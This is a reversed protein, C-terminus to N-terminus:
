NKKIENLEKSLNIYFTVLITLQKDIFRKSISNDETLLKASIDNINNPTLASLGFPKYIDIHYDDWLIRKLNEFNTNFYEGTKNSKLLTKIDVNRVIDNIYMSAMRNDEISLYSTLLMRSLIPSSLEITREQSFIKLQYIPVLHIIILYKLTDNIETIYEIENEQFEKLYDEAEKLVLEKLYIEPEKQHKEPILSLPLVYVGDLKNFLKQFGIKELALGIPARMWKSNIEGLKRKAKELKSAAQVSKSSKWKEVEKMVKNREATQEKYTTSFGEGYKHVFILKESNALNLISKESIKGKSLVNDIARSIYPKSEKLDVNKPVNFREFMRPSIKKIQKVEEALLEYSKGHWNTISLFHYYTNKYNFFKMLREKILLSNLIKPYGNIFFYSKLLFMDIRNLRPLKSNKLLWLQIEGDYFRYFNNKQRFEKKILKLYLDKDQNLSNHVGFHNLHALVNEYSEKFDNDFQNETLKSQSGTKIRTTLGLLFVLPEVIGWISSLFEM